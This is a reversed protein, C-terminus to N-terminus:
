IDSKWWSMFWYHFMAPHLLIHCVIETTISLSSQTDRPSGGNNKLKHKTQRHIGFDCLAGAEVTIGLVFSADLVNFLSSFALSSSFNRLVCLSNRHLLHRFAGLSLGSHFNNHIHFSSNCFIQM